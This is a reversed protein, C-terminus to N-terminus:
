HVPTDYKESFFDYVMGSMKAGFSYGAVETSARHSLYTIAYAKQNGDGGRFVVLGADAIVWGDIDNYYGIKHPVMASSPLQGPLIYNLGPKIELLRAIAYSTWDDSFLEVHYLKSLVMNTEVPTLLNNQTGDGYYPVHHFLSDKMGWSQMLQQGRDVGAQHSGFVIDLFEAVEPPSSNGIGIRILGAVEEPKARGAQFESIAAFLGFMNITCGTRWITTGKISMTQGTQLDTVALGMDFTPEQRQYATLERQLSDRLQLMEPSVNTNEPAASVPAVPPPGIPKDGGQPVSATQPQSPPTPTPAPAVPTAIAQPRPTPTAPATGHVFAAEGTRISWSDGAALYAASYGLWRSGQYTWMRDVTACAGAAQGATALPGGWYLLQWLGAGPCRISTNAAASAPPSAFWASQEARTATPFAAIAGVVAVTLIFTSWTVSKRQSGTKINNSIQIISRV